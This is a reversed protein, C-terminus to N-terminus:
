LWLVFLLAFDNDLFTRVQVSVSTPFRPVATLGGDDDDFLIDGPMCAQGFVKNREASLPSGPLIGTTLSLVEGEGSDEEFPARYYLYFALADDGAAIMDESSGIEIRLPWPGSATSLVEPVTAIEALVIARAEASGSAFHVGAKRAEDVDGSGGCAISSCATALSLVLLPRVFRPM